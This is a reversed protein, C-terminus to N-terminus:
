QVAAFAVAVQEVNQHNVGAMCMRGSAILYVGFEERLSEVQAESFGTYSFMGRQQLLYDFNREPLSAKLAEVLTHRMDLIRLRMQEVEAQWQARLVTDNLVKSVVQAGFNPPSSYNRRVTAKLQGLVRGAAEDSECVVSLGGVRENYLSFIKSFSNSILCPLGVAAMARIAYADENLGAGFGQYAITVFPAITIWVWRRFDSGPPLRSE